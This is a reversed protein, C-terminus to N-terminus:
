RGTVSTWTAIEVNWPSRKMYRSVICPDGTDLRTAEFGRSQRGEKWEGESEGEVMEVIKRKNILLLAFHRWKNKKNRLFNKLNRAFSRINDFLDFRIRDFIIPSLDFILSLHHSLYIWGKCNKNKLTCPYVDRANDYNCLPNNYAALEIGRGGRGKDRNCASWDINTWLYSEASALFFAIICLFALLLAHTEETERRTRLFEGSINIDGRSQMGVFRASLLLSAFPSGASM